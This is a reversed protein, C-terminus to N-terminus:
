SSASCRRCHNTCGSVGYNEHRLNWNRLPFTRWQLLYIYKCYQNISIWKEMWAGRPLCGSFFLLMNSWADFVLACCSFVYPLFPHYCVTLVSCFVIALLRLPVHAHTFQQMQQSQSHTVNEERSHHYHTLLWIAELNLQAIAGGFPSHTTHFQLLIHFNCVFIKRQRTRIQSVFFCRYRRAKMMCCRRSGLHLILCESGAYHTFM